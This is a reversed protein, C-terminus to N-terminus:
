KNLRLKEKLKRFFDKYKPSKEDNPRHELSAKIKYNENIFNKLKMLFIFM